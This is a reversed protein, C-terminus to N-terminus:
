TIIHLTGHALTRTRTSYIFHWFNPFEVSNLFPRPNIIKYALAYMDKTWNVGLDRRSTGRERERERKRERERERTKVRVRRIDFYSLFSVSGTIALYEQSNIGHLICLAHM